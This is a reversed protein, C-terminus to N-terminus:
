LLKIVTSGQTVFTVLLQVSQTLPIQIPVQLAHLPLQPGQRVIAEQQVIIKLPAQQSCNASTDRNVTSPIPPYTLFRLHLVSNEWMANSRHLVELQAITVQQVNMELLIKSQRVRSVSTGV